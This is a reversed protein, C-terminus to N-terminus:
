RAVARGRALPRVIPPAKPLEGSDLEELEFSAARILSVTDRNPHCDVTLWRWPRELRDQWRALRPDSSRVHELFLLRGGPKLVRRLEALARAPDRVSCLVLTCVVTDFSGDPLPLAEAASRLVRGARGGAALRRELRHAMADDPEVLVLEELDDPYHALNLGTGAGVELVRGGALSVLERRREALGAKEARAALPDYAAARIRRLLGM